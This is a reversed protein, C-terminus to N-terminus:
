QFSILEVDFILMGAPAGPRGKYALAEPIWFRRKEGTVMLQLGETANLIGQPGDTMEKLAYFLSTKQADARAAFEASLNHLAEVRTDSTPRALGAPRQAHAAAATVLILVLVPLVHHKKITFM